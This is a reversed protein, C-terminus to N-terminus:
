KHANIAGGLFYAFIAVLLIASFGIVLKLVNGRISNDTPIKFIHALYIGVCFAFFVWASATVIWFLGVAINDM